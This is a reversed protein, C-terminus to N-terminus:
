TRSPAGDGIEFKGARDIYEDLRAIRGAELTVFICVPWALRAGSATVGVMLQRQVFGGPIPARWADVFSREPFGAVLGRWGEVMAARDQEVRDFSHWVVGNPTFCDRAADLDGASLADFLRDIVEGGDNAGGM